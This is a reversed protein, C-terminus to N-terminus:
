SGGGSGAETPDAPVALSPFLASPDTSFITGLINKAGNWAGAAVGGVETAVSSVATGASSIASATSSYADWIVLGIVGAVIVVGIIEAKEM